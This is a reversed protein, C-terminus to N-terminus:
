TLADFVYDPIRYGADRLQALRARLAPEDDDVFDEGDHPGGIPSTTATDLVARQRQYADMFVENSVACIDPVAPIEVDFRCAAVNTVWGRDSEYVYVDSTHNDSSFRCLAM